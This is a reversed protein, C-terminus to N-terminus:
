KRGIASKLRRPAKTAKEAAVHVAEAAVAIRKRLERVLRDIEAFDQDVTALLTTKVAVITGFSPRSTQASNCVEDIAVRQIRDRPQDPDETETHQSRHPQLWV